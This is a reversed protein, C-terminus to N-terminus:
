IVKPSGPQYSRLFEIASAKDKFRGEIADGNNYRVEIEYRKVPRAKGDDDYSEIFQIADDITIVEHTGGHLALIVIHAIQRSVVVALSTM